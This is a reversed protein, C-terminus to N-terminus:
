KKAIQDTARKILDALEKVTVNLVAPEHLRDEDEAVELALLIPALEVALEILALREMRKPLKEEKRVLALDAPLLLISLRVLRRAQIQDGVGNDGPIGDVDRCYQILETLLAVRHVVVIDRVQGRDAVLM